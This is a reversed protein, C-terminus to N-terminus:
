GPSTEWRRGLAFAQAPDLAERIRTRLRLTAAMPPLAPTAGPVGHGDILAFGADALSDITTRVAAPDIALRLRGSSAHFAFSSPPDRLLPAIAGPTNAATTLVLHPRDADELDCLRQALTAADADGVRRTPVAFRDTVMAAQRAVWAADDELGIVLVFSGSSPALEPVGRAAEGGLVTVYAPELRPLWAWRAADAITAADMAYVLAVRSEPAPALKLSAEVFIALGGRSGCLLRHIGYGAVNKVVKGGTKVLTGDALAYRAGLIRDRPSGFRLRRPGSANAALAGGLTARGAFAAELPLEQGRAALRERLAAITVGCEATLTFDEPDYEIVRDLGTVDIALDYREPAAEHPLSVGGGWPVIALRDRTAARLVECLQERTRPREIQAPARGGIAYDAPASRSTATTTAVRESSKLDV